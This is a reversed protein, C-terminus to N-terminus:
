KIEVAVTCTPIGETTLIKGQKTILTKGILQEWIQWYEKRKDHTLKGAGVNFQVGDNGQVLFAGVMGKCEGTQSMAETIHMITYEDKESPKYKLMQRVLRRAEYTPYNKNRFMGGEFGLELFIDVMQMWNNQTASYTPVKKLVPHDGLKDFVIDLLLLREVQPIPLKIDFIHYELEEVDPNYNVTRRLASDIRERSWGHKYVEGDFPIKMGTAKWADMIGSKINDLFEFSNAYSSVVVPHGEFVETLGREGNLKPQFFFSSGLNAIKKEDAPVALMVGQRKLRTM